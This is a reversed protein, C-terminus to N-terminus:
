AKPGQGAPQLAGRFRAGMPRSQGQEDVCVLLAEALCWVEQSAACRIRYNQVFSSQGVHSTCCEVLVEAGGKGPRLFRVNSQALVFPFRNEKLQGQFFAHRAEEMLTM